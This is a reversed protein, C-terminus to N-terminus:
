RINQWTKGNYCLTANCIKVKYVLLKMTLEVLVATFPLLDLGPAELVSVTIGGRSDKIDFTSLMSCSLFFDIVTVLFLLMMLRLTPLLKAKKKKKVIGGNKVLILTQM